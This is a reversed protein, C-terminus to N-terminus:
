YGVLPDVLGILTEGAALRRMNEVVQREALAAIPQTSAHPTVIVRPHAWLPSEQPLPEQPFVDLMAGGLKGRDLAALLDAEVLQGGRGMHAIFAGDPLADFLPRALIGRTEATLPLLNILIESRALFAAQEAAGAFCEIGPLSKRTRSWGLTTFGMMALKRAADGGLVGLGMVGVTREAPHRGPLMRWERRQQQAMYGALNRHFYLTALMAYESMQDALGAEVLRALPVHRPFLPDVLIQDVGAGLAFVARLNPLTALVGGKIKWILAYRIEEIRGLAPFVRFELAPFAQAMVKRWPEPDDIDSAFLIADTM